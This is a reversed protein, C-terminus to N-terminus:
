VSPPYIHNNRHKSEKLILAMEQIFTLEEEVTYNHSAYYHKFPFLFDLVQKSLPTGDSALPRMPQSLQNDFAVDVDPSKNDASNSILTTTM